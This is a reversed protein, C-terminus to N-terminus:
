KDEKRKASAGQAEHTPNYRGLVYDPRRADPMVCCSIIRWGNDLLAQLEDTCINEALMLDNVTMLLSGGIHVNCKNNYTNSVDPLEALAKFQTFLHSLDKTAKDIYEETPRIKVKKCGKVTYQLWPYKEAMIVLDIGSIETPAHFTRPSKSQYAEWKKINKAELEKKRDDYVYDHIEAETKWRIETDLTKLQEMQEETLKQSYTEIAITFLNITDIM